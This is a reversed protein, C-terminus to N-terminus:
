EIVTIFGGSTRNIGLLIHAAVASVVDGVDVKWLTAVRDVLGAGETTLLDIQEDSLSTSYGWRNPEGMFVIDGGIRDYPGYQLAFFLTGMLNEPKQSLKHEEDVIMDMGIAPLSVVEIYGGVAKQLVDLSNTDTYELVSKEEDTTVRVARKTDSKRRKPV